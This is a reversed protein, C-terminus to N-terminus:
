AHRGREGREIEGEREMEREGQRRYGEKKEKEGERIYTDIGYAWRCYTLM